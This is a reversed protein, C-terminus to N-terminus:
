ILFRKLETLNDVIDQCFFDYGNKRINGDEVGFPTIGALRLSLIGASSDEIGIVGHLDNGSLGLGVRATESYLWPHPKPSLEGLTGTAGKKLPYGATIISDYFALPDGLKMTRFAAVIEPWAKEYLGSTVLGTKIKHEKLLLLFERVGEGPTFADSKGKGELIKQMEETTIKYYALRAEELSKEPAYKNLCYQLHESVSNGSVHPIDEDELSFSPNKLTKAISQEIIWVWFEESKVTTGDLDMLVAKVPGKFSVEPLPYIAPAGLSSPIYVLTKDEFVILYAKKDFTQLVAKVGDKEAHFLNDDTKLVVNLHDTINKDHTLNPISMDAIAM